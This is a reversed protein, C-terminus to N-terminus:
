LPSMTKLTIIQTTFSYNPVWFTTNFKNTIAMFENYSHDNYGLKVTVRISLYLGRSLDVFLSKSSKCIMISVEEEEEKRM